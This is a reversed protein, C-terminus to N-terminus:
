RAAFTSAGAPEPEQVLVRFIDSETIIGVLKDNEVVPLGGIKHELMTQAAERITAAPAIVMPERTMIKEVTLKALLYNLEFISLSSADSPSAERVDGLTLIGVVKGHEVVPLRRIHCEKMLKHAEPLTTYPDITIPNPTMWDRVQNKKMM